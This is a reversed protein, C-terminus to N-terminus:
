SADTSRAHASVLTDRVADLVVSCAAFEARLRAALGSFVGLAEASVAGSVSVGIDPTVPDVDAVEIENVVLVFAGVDAGSCAHSAVSCVPRFPDGL